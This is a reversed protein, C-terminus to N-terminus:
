SQKRIQEDLVKLLGEGLERSSAMAADLESQTLIGKAILVDALARSQALAQTAFKMTEALPPMLIELPDGM